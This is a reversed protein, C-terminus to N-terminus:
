VKSNIVASQLPSYVASNQLNKNSVPIQQITLQVQASKSIEPPVPIVPGFSSLAGNQAAQNLAALGYQISNEAISSSEYQYA